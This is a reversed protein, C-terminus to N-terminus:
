LERYILIGSMSDVATIGSKVYRGANGFNWKALM